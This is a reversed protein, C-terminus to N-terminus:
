PMQPMWSQIAINLFWEPLDILGSFYNLLFSFTLYIYVIKCLKPAWGLALAALGIFFLVSPFLNFCAALFDVIDMEGSDVMVFIATVGLSGLALLVVLLAGVISLW